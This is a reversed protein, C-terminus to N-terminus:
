SRRAVFFTYGYCDGSERHMPPEKALEDLTSLAEADDAYKTRLAEIRQEMPRYFDNWWAEDPLDFHDVVAYGENEFLSLVEEVSGM